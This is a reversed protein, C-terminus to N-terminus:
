SDQSFDNRRELKKTKINKAGQLRMRLIEKRFSFRNSVSPLLRFILFHML